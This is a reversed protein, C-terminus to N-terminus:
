FDLPPTPTQAVNSTGPVLISLSATGERGAHVLCGGGGGLGARSPLTVALALGLAAAAAAANGRHALIDRAVGVARPDDGVVFGQTPPGSGALQLANCAAVALMSAAIMCQRGRRWHGITARCNPTRKTSDLM